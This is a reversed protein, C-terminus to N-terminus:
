GHAGSLEDAIKWLQEYREFGYMFHTALKHAKSILDKVEPFKKDSVRMNMRIIEGVECAGVKYGNHIM